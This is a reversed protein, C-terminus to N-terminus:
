GEAECWVKRTLAGRERGAAADLRANEEKVAQCQQEQLLLAVIGNLGGCRHAGPRWVGRM